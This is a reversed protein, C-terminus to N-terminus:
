LRWTLRNRKILYKLLKKTWNFMKVVNKLHNKCLKNWTIHNLTFNGWGFKSKRVLSFFYSKKVLSFFYIQTPTTIFYKVKRWGYKAHFLPSKAVSHCLLIKYLLNRFTTSKTVLHSNDFSRLSNSLCMTHCFTGSKAVHKIHRKIGRSAFLESKFAFKKKVKVVLNWFWVNWGWCNEYNTKMAFKCEFNKLCILCPFHKHNM